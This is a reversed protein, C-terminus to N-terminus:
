LEHLVAIARDARGREVLRQAMEARQGLAILEQVLGDHLERALRAREAEQGQTVAGVYDRMGAEYGRIREVMDALAQNLDRVEQVGRVPRSIPAYDGWSVQEASRALQQLPRVITWWGFFLILLSLGGAGGAVVPVLSPFRLIPGILDRVPERVVVVWDTGEVAAFAVLVPGQEGQVIVFGDSQALAEAIGPTSRFDAGVRGSQVHALVIGAGDLAMVEGPIANRDLAMWTHLRDGDGGVVGHMLGDEAIQAALRATALDREVVFDRMTQQHAYVGSFSIAIMVFTVPMVAWLFLQVHLSRLWRGM